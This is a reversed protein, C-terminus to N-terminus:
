HFASSRICSRQGKDDLLTATVTIKPPDQSVVVPEAPHWGFFRDLLSGASRSGGAQADNTKPKSTDEARWDITLVTAKPKISEPDLPGPMRLASFCACLWSSRQPQSQGLRQSWAESRGCPPKQMKNGVTSLWNGNREDERTEWISVMPFLKAFLMYILLFVAVAGATISWEV